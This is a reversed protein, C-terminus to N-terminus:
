INKSDKRNGNVRLKKEVFNPVLYELSGGLKAVQRVISSSLFFYETHPMLFVTEIDKNLKRNMITMQFEYDFDSVARLGRIIVGAKKKKCYDVLLCNFSDVEVKEPISKKLMEMRELMSFFSTKDPNNTVAVIVKDFLKLAREIIDIHGNTVPDFTGPYIATKM